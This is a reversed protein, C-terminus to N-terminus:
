RCWASKSRHCTSKSRTATLRFTGGPWTSSRIGTRAAGFAWGTKSRSVADPLFSKRCRFFGDTQAPGMFVVDCRYGLLIEEMRLADGGRKRGGGAGHHCYVVLTTSGGYHEPTGRRFRLCVFGEIGLALDRMEKHAATAVGRVIERYADRDYDDLVKSEHNGSRLGLCKSAIPALKRVLCDIQLGVVDVEGYLWRALSTESYRRDGKRPIADIYDGGGIWYARPDALIAEIDADLLAEDCAANGLHIDTLDWLTFLEARSTYYLTHSLTRLGLRGGRRALPGHRRRALGM